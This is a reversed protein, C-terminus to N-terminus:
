KSYNQLLKYAVIYTIGGTVGKIVGSQITGDFLMLEAAVFITVWVTITVAATFWPNEFDLDM